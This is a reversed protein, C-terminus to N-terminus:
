LKYIAKKSLDMKMWPHEKIEKLTPRTDPDHFMMKEFLDRYEVTLANGNVMSWYKKSSIQLARYFREDRRAETFPLLGNTLAFLVM